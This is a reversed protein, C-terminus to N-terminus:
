AIINQNQEAAKNNSNAIGLGILGAIAAAGGIIAAKAGGHIGKVKGSLDAILKDYEGKAKELAEQATKKVGENVKGKEAVAKDYLAQKDEVIKALRKYSDKQMAQEETLATSSTGGFISPFKHRLEGYAKRVGRERYLATEKANKLNVIRSDNELIANFANNLKKLGNAHNEAITKRQQVIKKAEDVTTVGYESIITAMETPKGGRLKSLDDTYQEVTKLGSLTANGSADVLKAAKLNSEQKKVFDKPYDDIKVQLDYRKRANSFLEDTIQKQQSKLDKNIEALKDAETGKPLLLFGELKGSADKVQILEQTHKIGKPLKSADTEAVFEGLSKKQENTLETQLPLIDKQVTESINGYISKPGLGARRFFRTFSNNKKIEFAKEPNGSSKAVGVADTYAKEIADHVKNFETKADYYKGSTASEASAIAADYKAKLPNYKTEFEAATMGEPTHMDAAAKVEVRKATTGKEETLRALEKDRAEIAKDLEVKESGEVVPKSAEDLTQQAKDLAEKKSQLEVKDKENADKVLDDYSKAEGTNKSNYLATAGWGVGAGAAAGLGGALYPNTRKQQEAGQISLADTM